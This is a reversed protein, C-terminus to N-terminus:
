SKVAIILIAVVSVGIIPIILSTNTTDLFGKVVGGAEKGLEGKKLYKMLDDYFKSTPPDDNPKIIPHDSDYENGGTKKPKFYEWPDQPKEVDKPPILIKDGPAKITSDYLWAFDTKYIIDGQRFHALKNLYSTGASKLEAGDGYKKFLERMYENQRLQLEDSTVILGKFKSPFRNYIAVRQLNRMDDTQDTM